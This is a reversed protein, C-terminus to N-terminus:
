PFKTFIQDLIILGYSDIMVVNKNTLSYDILNKDYMENIAGAINIRDLKKQLWEKTAGNPATHLYLLIRFHLINIKFQELLPEIEFAAQLTKSYWELAADAELKNQLTRSKLSGANEKM